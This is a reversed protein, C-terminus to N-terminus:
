ALLKTNYSFFKDDLKYCSISTINTVCMTKYHEIYTLHSHDLMRIHIWGIYKEKPRPKSIITNIKSKGPNSSAFYLTKNSKPTDRISDSNEEGVEHIPLMGKAELFSTFSNTNM